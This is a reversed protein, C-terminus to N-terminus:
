SLTYLYKNHKWYYQKMLQKCTSETKFHGLEHVKLILNHRDAIPPVLLDYSKLKPYPTYYIKNEYLRYFPALRHIRKNQQQTAGPLYTGYQLFHLLHTDEHIDLSKSSLDSDSVSISNIKIMTQINSIESKLIPQLLRSLADVNKHHTGPRHKIIANNAQLAYSWRAVRGHPDKLNILWLLARHDTYITYTSGYIYPRFLKTAWIVSLCEKETISYHHEANHLLRSAFECVYENNHEDVQALIAGLGSGSADCHIIFPRELNPLQLIPYQVMLDKLFEFTAIEVPGFNWPVNKHLLQNLSATIAAFQDIFIRYYGTFGLFRSLETTNTPIPWNKILKIKNEDMKLKSNGVIHGFLKIETQFFLCKYFNLKLNIERLRKFIRELDLLHQENDPSHVTSDDFYNEEIDHFERFVEEMIRNFDSPANSLGFPLRLFEYHGSQTSFATKEISSPDLLVQYYAQLFDLKSYVKSKRLNVFIEDVRPIPYKDKVTLKNLPKYNVCMRKTKDPKPILVIQSSWPSKSHRIINNELLRKVKNEIIENEYKSRRYPRQYIPKADGTDIQHFGITCPQKLDNVSTAFIDKYKIILSKLKHSLQPSLLPFDPIVLKTEELNWSEIDIDENDVEENPIITTSFPISNEDLEAETETILIENNSNNQNKLHIIKEPFTLTQEFINVIARTKRLWDVGLLVNSRQIIVFVLETSHGNLSIEIPKTIPVIEQLNSNGYQVPITGSIPIKNEYVFYEPIVSQTAATDIVVEIECNNIYATTTLLSDSEVVSINVPNSGTNTPNGIIEQIAASRPQNSRQATQHQHQLTNPQHSSNNNNTNFRQSYRNNNRQDGQNSRRNFNHQNQSNVNNNRNQNYNNYRSNNFNRANTSNNTNNQSQSSSNSPNLRCENTSHTNIKHISCWKNASAIRRNRNFVTNTFNIDTPANYVYSSPNSTHTASFARAIQIAEQLTAPERYNVENQLFPQLNQVFHNVKSDESEGTTQNILYLFEEIYSQLDKTQRLLALKALCTRNINKALFQTKFHAKLEDWTTNPYEILLNRYTQLALDRLYVRTTFVYEGIPINAIQYNSETTFLWMDVNENSKGSFLPQSSTIALKRNTKEILKQNLTAIQTELAVFTRLNEKDRVHFELNTTLENNHGKLENNQTKLLAIQAELEEKTAMDRTNRNKGSRTTHTITPEIIGWKENHMFHKLDLSLSFYQRIEFM